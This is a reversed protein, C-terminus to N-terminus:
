TEHARLHTYSVTTLGILDFGQYKAIAACTTSDLGGSLLIIAKKKM